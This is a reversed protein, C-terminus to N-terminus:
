LQSSRSMEMTKGSGAMEMQEEEEVLVEPNNEQSTASDCGCDRFVCDFVISLTTLLEPSWFIM